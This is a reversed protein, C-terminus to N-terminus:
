CSGVHIFLYTSRGADLRDHFLYTKEVLPLVKPVDEATAARIIPEM